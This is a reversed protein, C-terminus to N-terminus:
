EGAVGIRALELRVARDARVRLLKGAVGDICVDCVRYAELEIATYTLMEPLQAQLYRFPAQQRPRIDDACGKTGRFIISVGILRPLRCTGVARLGRRMEAVGQLRPANPQLALIELRPKFAGHIVLIVPTLGTAWSGHQNEGLTRTAFVSCM